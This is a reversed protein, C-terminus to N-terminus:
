PLYTYATKPTSDPWARQHNTLLFLPAGARGPARAPLISNARVIGYLTSCAPLDKPIARWQCGTSLIYMLGNVVEREDVHRRNGGRKAPPVLPAVHAWEADTLDSPYGVVSQQRQHAVHVDAIAFGGWLARSQRRKGREGHTPLCCLTLRDHDIAPCHGLGGVSRVGAVGFNDGGGGGERQAKLAAFPDVVRTLDHRLDHGTAQDLM